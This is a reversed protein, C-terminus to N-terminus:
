TFTLARCYETVENMMARVRADPVSDDQHQLLTLIQESVFAWRLEPSFHHWLAGAREVAAAYCKKGLRETQTEKAM